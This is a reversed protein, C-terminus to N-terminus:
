SRNSLYMMVEDRNWGIVRGSPTRLPPPLEDESVWRYVTQRSRRLLACIEAMKMIPTPAAPPSFYDLISM